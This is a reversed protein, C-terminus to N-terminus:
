GVPAGTSPPQPSARDPSVEFHDDSFEQLPSSDAFDVDQPPTHELSVAADIQHKRIDQPLKLFRTTEGSAHWDMPTLWGSYMHTLTKGGFTTKTAIMVYCSICMTGCCGPIRGNAKHLPSRPRERSSLNLPEM